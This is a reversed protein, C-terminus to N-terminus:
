TKCTVDSPNLVTGILGTSTCYLTPFATVNLAPTTSQITTTSIVETSSVSSTESTSSTPDSIQGFILLFINCLFLISVCYVFSM